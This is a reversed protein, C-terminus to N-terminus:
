AECSRVPPAAALVHPFCSAATPSARLGEGAPPGLPQPPPLLSRAAGQTRWAPRVAGEAPVGAAGAGAGGPGVSWQAQRADCGRGLWRVLCGTVAGAVRRGPVRGVRRGRGVAGAVRATVGALGGRGRGRGGRGRRTEGSGSLQLWARQGGEERLLLFLLTQKSSGGM